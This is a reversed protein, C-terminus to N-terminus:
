YHSFIHKLITMENESVSQQKLSKWNQIDVLAKEFQYREV